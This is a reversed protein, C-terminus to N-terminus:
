EFSFDVGMMAKWCLAKALSVELSRTEMVVPVLFPLRADLRVVGEEMLVEVVLM